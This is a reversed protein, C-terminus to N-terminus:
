NLLEIYKSNDKSTIKGEYYIKALKFQAERHNQDASKKLWEVSEENQKGRVVTNDYKNRLSVSKGRYLM